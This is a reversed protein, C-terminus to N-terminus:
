FISALIVVFAMLGIVNHTCEVLLFNDKLLLHLLTLLVVLMLMEAYVPCARIQINYRSPTLTFTITVIILSASRQKLNQLSAPVLLSRRLVRFCLSKLCNTVLATSIKRCNAFQDNMTHCCLFAFHWIVGSGKLDSVV